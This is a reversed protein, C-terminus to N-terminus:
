NIIKRIVDFNNLTIKWLRNQEELLRKRTAIGNKEHVYLFKDFIREALHEPDATLDIYWDEAHIDELFYKIKDHTGLSIIECNLGFPIMQAHGRMGLVLEVSNYFDYAESPYADSLNKESYSVDCADMYPRIKRDDRMHYVLILEYGCETIKKASLAIQTLILEKDRGFRLEERDFAINVAIRRSHIKGPLDPYLKRILTTTCPQYVVKEKLDEPLIGKIAEVSGNNRLGFFSSKRCLAEVNRCFLENNSQGRFYNYGVSFVIVPRIIRNLQEISVSWQWGSISNENTDPLFLGGGGIIVGRSRNIKEICKNDVRSSVDQLIWNVSFHKEFTRRVCQSLVTDGVNGVKYYTVHTFANKEKCIFEPYSGKKEVLVYRKKKVIKIFHFIIKAILRM